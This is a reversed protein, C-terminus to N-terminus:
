SLVSLLLLSVAIQDPLPHNSRVLQIHHSFGLTTTVPPDVIYICVMELFFVTKKTTLKQSKVIFFEEQKAQTHSTSTYSLVVPWLNSEQSFIFVCLLQYFGLIVCSYLLRVLLKM